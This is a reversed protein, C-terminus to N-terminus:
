TFARNIGATAVHMIRERYYIININHKSIGWSAIAYLSQNYPRGMMPAEADKEFEKIYNLQVSFYKHHIIYAHM